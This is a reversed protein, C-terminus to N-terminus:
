IPENSSVTTFTWICAGAEGSGDPPLFWFESSALHWRRGGLMWPVSFPSDALDSWDLGCTDSATSPAAFNSTRKKRQLHFPDVLTPCSQNSEESSLAPRVSSPSTRRGSVMWGTWWCRWRSVVPCGSSPCCRAWGSEASSINLYM